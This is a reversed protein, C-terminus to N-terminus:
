KDVTWWDADDGEEGLKRTKKLLAFFGADTEACLGDNEACLGDNEACFECHKLIAADNETSIDDDETYFRM